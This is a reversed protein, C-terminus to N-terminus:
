AACKSINTTYAFTCPTYAAPEALLPLAQVAVEEAQIQMAAPKSKHSQQTEVVCM